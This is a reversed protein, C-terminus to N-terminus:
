LGQRRIVMVNSNISLYISHLQMVSWSMIAECDLSLGAVFYIQGKFYLLPFTKFLVLDTDVLNQGLQSWKTPIELYTHVIAAYRGYKHYCGL